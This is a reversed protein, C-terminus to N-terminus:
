EIMYGFRGVNIITNEPLKKRLKFIINKLAVDSMEKFVYMEKEVMKKTIINGKNLILLELVKCESSTVNFIVDEDFKIIKQQPNYVCGNIEILNTVRNKKLLTAVTELSAMLSDISIPKILYDVLGLKISELLYEKHSYASIIIIPIKSDTQRITKVMELGNINRMEIDSIIFSPNNKKYIDLAEKGNSAEYVTGIYIKLLRSFKERTRFDDEVLLVSSSILLNKDEKKMM